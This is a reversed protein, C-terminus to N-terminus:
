PWQRATFPSGVAQKTGGGLSWLQSGVSLPESPCQQSGDRERSGECGKRRTFTGGESLPAARLPGTPM